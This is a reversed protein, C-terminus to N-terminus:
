GAPRGPPDPEGGVTTEPYGPRVRDTRRDVTLMLVAQLRAPRPDAGAVEAGDRASQDLRGLHGVLGRQQGMAVVGGAGEHPGFVGSGGEAAIPLLERM